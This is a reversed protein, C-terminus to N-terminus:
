INLQYYVDVNLPSNFPVLYAGNTFANYQTPVNAYGRSAGFGPTSVQPVQGTQPGSVGTAVPQYYPNVLPISEYYPDGGVNQVQIGITSRHFQYEVTINGNFNPKSLIGGAASNQPTGRTAAINPNFGTGPLAPDAFQTAIGVGESANFGPIATVGQGFNVQPINANRGGIPFQSATTTGLTYPYGRDYNLVPTIHLGFKTKYTVGLRAQVPSVYGARYVDGLLLSSSEIAPLGNEGSLLPPTSDLVNQYTASFFGSFGVPREPTTLGFEVGATKNIGLNNVTFVGGLFQGTTPSIEESIFSFSPVGTATKVFPTLRLGWGNTFQHQYSFDYNTFITPLGNGLDPADNNNDGFWYLQSAYSQCPFNPLASGPIGTGCMSGPKAPIKNFAAANYLGAPTGADQANSFQASRGYGFRVSDNRDIEYSVAGRPEDVQPRLVSSPISALAVDSPDSNAISAPAYPNVGYKYIEADRRYGLDFRLADTPNYQFRLAEATTIFTSNNYNIGWTPIRPINTGFFKSLYGGPLFDAYDPSTCAAYAVGQTACQGILSGSGGAGGSNEGLLAYPEYGNWLPKQDEYEGHLTITYKPGFSRTLDLQGGVRQGGFDNWSPAAQGAAGISNQTTQQIWTNYYRLAAFTNQDISADYEFKLLNTRNYNTQEPSTPTSALNAPLGPQLPALAAFNPTLPAGVGINYNSILSPDNPYYQLSNSTGNFLGGRDGYTQLDQNSFLVQLSQANNHGFKLILNNVLQDNNLASFGYFAGNGLTAVNTTNFGYGLNGSQLTDTYPVTRQGTFSFYDSINGSRTATGYEFSAQHFYNPGGVELDALGTGPYSGRKTITNVVGGGVNGQTSDGPGSVVQVSGVGNFRGSSGNSSFFPETLPVGDLQYGVETELGGRITINGSSSVSTGPAALLLDTQNTSASKGTTEAIRNGSITFSDTTQTPQFASSISRTTTRGITRLVKAVRLNGINNSQDGIVTVGNQQLAEYGPAEVTILYTDVTLGNFTFQGNSSTTAHVTASPSAATVRASAIPAGTTTDVVTGSLNGYQGGAALAPDISTLLLAFVAVLVSFLRLSTIVGRRLLHPQKMFDGLFSSSGDEM